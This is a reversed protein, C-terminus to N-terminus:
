FRFQGGGAFRAVSSSVGRRVVGSPDRDDDNLLHFRGTWVLATRPSVALVADFGFTTTVVADSLTQEVPTTSFPPLDSRFSGERITRRWGLGVGAVAAVHVPGANTTTVKVVGSFISDHHRSRLINTGASVRQQQGGKLESGLSVEGGVSLRASVDVDLFLMGSVTTGGFPPGLYPLDSDGKTQSSLGLTAAVAVPQEAACIIAEGSKWVMLTLLLVRVRSSVLIV